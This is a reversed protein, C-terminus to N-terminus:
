GTPYGPQHQDPYCGREEYYAEIVTQANKLDTIAAANYSKARYSTFRPIAVAALVGVISTVTVLEILTFGKTNSKKLNKTFMAREKAIELFSM